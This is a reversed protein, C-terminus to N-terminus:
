NKYQNISGNLEQIQIKLEKTEAKLTEYEQTQTSVTDNLKEVQNSIYMEKSNSCASLVGIILLGFIIKKM